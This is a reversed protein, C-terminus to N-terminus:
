HFFRIQLNLKIADTEASMLSHTSENQSLVFLQTHELLVDSLKKEDIYFVEGQTTKVVNSEVSNKEFEWIQLPTMGQLVSKLFRLLKIKYFLPYVNTDVNLCNKQSTKKILVENSIPDVEKYLSGVIEPLLKILDSDVFSLNSVFTTNEFRQFVVNPKGNLIACFHLPSELSELNFKDFSNQNLLRFDNSM